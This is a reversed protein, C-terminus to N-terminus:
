ILSLCSAAASIPTYNDWLGATTDLKLRIKITCNTNFWFHCDSHVHKFMHMSVFLLVSRKVCRCRCYIISTLTTALHSRGMQKGLSRKCKVEHNGYLGTCLLGLVVWITKFIAWRSLVVGLSLVTNNAGLCTKYWILGATRETKGRDTLQVDCKM